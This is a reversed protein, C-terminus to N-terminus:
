PATSNRLCGLPSQKVPEMLPATSITPSLIAIGDGLFGQGKQRFGAPMCTPASLEITGIGRNLASSYRRARYIIPKKALRKGIPDGHKPHEYGERRLFVCYGDIEGLGDPRLQGIHLCDGKTTEGLEDGM